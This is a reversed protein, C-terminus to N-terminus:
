PSRGSSFASPRRKALGSNNIKVNSTTTVKNQSSITPRMLGKGTTTGFKKSAQSNLDLEPEMRNLVDVSSCRVMVQTRPAVKANNFGNQSPKVTGKGSVAGVFTLLFGNFLPFSLYICVLTLFDCQASNASGGTCSKSQTQSSQPTPSASLDSLSIARRLGEEDYSDDDLQLFFFFCVFM